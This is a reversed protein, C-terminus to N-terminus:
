AYINKIDTIEVCHMVEAYNLWCKSCVLSLKITVHLLKFSLYKFVMIKM